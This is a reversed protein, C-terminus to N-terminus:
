TNTAGQAALRKELEEIRDLADNLQDYLARNGTGRQQPAPGDSEPKLIACFIFALLPSIILSLLFWGFGSANRRVSAFTGVAISFVIWFFFLLLEFM